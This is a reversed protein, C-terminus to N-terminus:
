NLSISCLVLYNDSFMCVTLEDVDIKIFIVDTFNESYEKFIPEMFHCPSCWSASFDIVVKDNDMNMLIFENNDLTLLSFHFVLKLLFM